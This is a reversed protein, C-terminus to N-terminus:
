EWASPTQRQARRERVLRAAFFEGAKYSSRVLPGSAVYAFGLERGLNEYELFEEPTVWAKVPAHGPTPRLYQGLTLFDVDAARLGELAVRVEDQTEGLGVMLSSKTFVEPDHVKAQQLTELSREFSCRPDRIRRQLRSVVEVNHALVDPRGGMLTAMEAGRYDPILTEVVTRPSHERIAEICRAYHASGGDPLDDRDVSTIVVYGLDMAGVARGVNQPEAPDPPAAKQVTKVACFRCNRTCEDGLVMLTMTAHDGKWCEGINPCRAEECVTHLKLERALTKLKSYGEGGPLPVKLWAPKRGEQPSTTPQSM